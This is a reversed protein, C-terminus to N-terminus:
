DTDATRYVILVTLAESGVQRLSHSSGDRTLVATGPTLIRASGDLTLEGRGSVIYYVEDKGHGHVGISAGDLLVRQRFAFGFDPQGAFFPSAITTGSGGHPGPQMRAIAQAHEIVSPRSQAARRQLQNAPVGCDTDRVTHHQALLQLEILGATVMCAMALAGREHFHTDDALGIVPDHLYWAKSAEPGLAALWDMSRQGLDILGVQEAAALRRVATAYAGHTDIVAGAADFSRRAVPTILVPTAGAKRAAVLFRRLGETYGSDAAAFRAPDERKQDNHGFQILLLDGPQLAQELTAFHGQSVYSRTSRGSVAHNHVQLQPQLFRELVQGWGMRPYRAQEYSSATSDGAILIRKPAAWAAVSCLAALATFCCRLFIHM